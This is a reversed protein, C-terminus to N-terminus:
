LGLERVSEKLIDMAMTIEPPNLNGFGFRVGSILGTQFLLTQPLHLDRKLCAKSLKLLNVDKRWETWVALGGPPASFQLLESFDREM